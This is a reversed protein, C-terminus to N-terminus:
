AEKRDDSPRMFRDYDHLDPAPEDHPTEGAAIRRALTM